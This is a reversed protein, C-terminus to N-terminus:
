KLLENATEENTILINVLNGFLASKISTVKDKGYAMGVRSRIKLYDDISTGIVRSSIEPMSFVGDENYFHLLIDGVVKNKFEDIYVSDVLKAEFVPSNESVNGIGVISLDIESIEQHSEIINNNELFFNKTEVTDAIVPAALFHPTANLANAWNQIVSTAPLEKEMKGVSGSMQIVKLNKRKDCMFIQHGVLDITNGWGLGLKGQYPIVGNLYDVAATAYSTAEERIVVADKLKFKNIIENELDIRRSTDTKSTIYFRILGQKKAEKLFRAVSSRGIGLQSAIDKQDMEMLHYMRAVKELFETKANHENNISKNM